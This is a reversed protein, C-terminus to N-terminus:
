IDCLLMNLSYKALEGSLDSVVISTTFIPLILGATWM